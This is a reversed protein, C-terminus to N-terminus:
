TKQSWFCVGRKKIGRRSKFDEGKKKIKKKREKRKIDFMQFLCLSLIFSFSNPKTYETSELVM